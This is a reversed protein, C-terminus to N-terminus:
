NSGLLNAIHYNLMKSFVPVSEAEYHIYSLRKYHVTYYQHMLKFYNLHNGVTTSNVKEHVPIM